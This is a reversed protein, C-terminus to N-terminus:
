LDQILKNIKVIDKFFTLANEPQTFEKEIKEYTNIPYSPYQIEIITRVIYNKNSVPKILKNAM